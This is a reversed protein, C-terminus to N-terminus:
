HKRKLMEDAELALSAMEYSLVAIAVRQSTGGFNAWEFCRQVLNDAIAALQEDRPPNDMVSMAACVLQGPDVNDGRAVGRSLM